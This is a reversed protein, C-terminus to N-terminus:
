AVIDVRFRLDNFDFDGGGFLDEFSYTNDTFRIHDVKDTNAGLYSFYTNTVGDGENVQLYPAWLAGGALNLTQSTVNKDVNLTAQTAGLAIDRYAPNNPAIAQGTLPDTITGLQDKVQYFGVALGNVADSTIDNF